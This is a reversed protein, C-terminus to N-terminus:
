GITCVIKEDVDLRIEVLNSSDMYQLNNKKADKNHNKPNVELHIKWCKDKTHGDINCHNCHNNPDKYQHAATIMKKDNGKWKKKGEKSAEQNEKQKSVRPKGKKYSINKLYKLKM